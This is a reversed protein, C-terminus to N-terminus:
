AEGAGLTIAAALQANFDDLKQRGMEPYAAVFAKVTAPDYRIGALRILTKIAMGDDMAKQYPRDSTMADFADAVAIIRANVPIEGATLGDPYGSGNYHEHHYKMGPLIERLQKIPSMITAGFVPHMKIIAYEEESLRGPKRLISDDIGIKGVDHLLAAIQVEELKEGEIAMKRAIALAFQTVRDSHGKTYPDKADVAAALSKITSLYLDRMNRDYAGLERIMFNFTDALQGIENRTRVEISGQFDGHAVSLAKGAFVSIPNSITHSVLAALLVAIFAVMVILINTQRRMQSVSLYADNKPEEIVIGWGVGEILDYAGLMERGDAGLFPVTGGTRGGLVYSGVIELRSLDTREIVKKRDKHAVVRGTQDVMFASGNRGVKAATVMSELERLDILAAVTGLRDGRPSRVTVLVPLLVADYGSVTVPQGVTYETGSVDNPGSAMGSFAAFAGEVVRERSAAVLEAGDIGRIRVAAINDYSGLFNVLLTQRQEASLNDTMGQLQALEVLTKRVNKLYMEVSLKLRAVSQTHMNLIIDELSKQNLDILKRGSYFLPVVSMLLLIAM